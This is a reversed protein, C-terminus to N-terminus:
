EEGFLTVAPNRADLKSGADPVQKSVSGDGVFRARLGSTAAYKMARAMPMGIFDPMEVEQTQSPAEDGTVMKARVTLRVSDSGFRAAQEVVGKKEAASVSFGQSALISRATEISLGRVDPM